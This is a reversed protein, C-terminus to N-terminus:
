REGPRYGDRQHQQGRGPRSEPHDRDAAAHGAAPIGPDPDFAVTVAQQGLDWLTLQETCDTAM